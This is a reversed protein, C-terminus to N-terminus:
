PGRWRSGHRLFEARYAAPTVGFWRRCAVIFPTQGSYGVLSAVEALPLFTFVLYEAALSRRVADALAQFTVGERKLRRQLTKPHLGLITAIREIRGGDNPLQSRILDLVQARLDVPHHRQLQHLYREALARLRPNTREIRLDLLPAPFVIRDHPCGFEIPCSFYRRYRSAAMGRAHRFQVRWGRGDSGTLARLFRYAIGMIMELSQQRPCGPDIGPDHDYRALDGTEDVSVSVRASPNHFRINRGMAELAGRLDDANLVVLAVNGLVSIDHYQSLQLGFDPAGLTRAAHDFMRAVSNGPVPLDPDRLQDLDIGHAALLERANGGNAAAVEEIGSLARARVFPGQVVSHRADGHAAPDGTRQIRDTM